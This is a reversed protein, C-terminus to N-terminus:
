KIFDIPNITGHKARIKDCYALVLTKVPSWISDKGWGNNEEIGNCFGQWYNFNFAPYPSNIEDIRGKIRLYISNQLQKTNM